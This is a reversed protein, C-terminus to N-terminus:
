KNEPPIPLGTVLSKAIDIKDLTRRRENLGSTANTGWEYYASALIHNSLTEAWKCIDNVRVQLADLDARGLKKVKDEDFWDLQAAVAKKAAWKALTAEDVTATCCVSSTGSSTIYSCNSSCPMVVQAMAGDTLAFLAAATFIIMKWM